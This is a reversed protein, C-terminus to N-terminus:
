SWKSYLKRNNNIKWTLWIRFIMLLRNCTTANSTPFVSGLASKLQKHFKDDNISRHTPLDQLPPHCWLSGPICSLKPLCRHNTTLFSVRLTTDSLFCGHTTYLILEFNFEVRLMISLAVASILKVSENKHVYNIRVHPWVTFCMQSIQVKLYTKKPKDQLFFKSNNFKQWTGKM